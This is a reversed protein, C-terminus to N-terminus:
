NNPDDTHASGSDDGPTTLTILLDPVEMGQEEDLVEPLEEGSQKADDQEAGQKRMAAFGLGSGGMLASRDVKFEIQPGEIEPPLELRKPTDHEARWSPRDQAPAVGAIGLLFLTALAATM